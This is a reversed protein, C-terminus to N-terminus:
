NRFAYIDKDIELFLVCQNYLINSFVSFYMHACMCLYIDGSEVNAALEIRKRFASYVFIKWM